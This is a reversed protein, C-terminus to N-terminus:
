FFLITERIKYSNRISKIFLPTSTKSHTSRRKPEKFSFKNRSGDRFFFDDDQNLRTERMNNTTKKTRHSNRLM